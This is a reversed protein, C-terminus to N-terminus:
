KFNISHNWAAGHMELSRKFPKWAAGTINGTVVHVNPYTNQKAHLLTKGISVPLELLNTNKWKIAWM